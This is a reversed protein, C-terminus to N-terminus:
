TTKNVQDRIYEKDPITAGQTTAFIIFDIMIADVENSAAFVGPASKSRTNSFGRIM